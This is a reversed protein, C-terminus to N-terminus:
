ECLGLRRFAKPCLSCVFKPEAHTELHAKLHRKSSGAYNCQDCKFPREMTHVQRIHDQLGINDVTKYDCLDCVFEKNHM